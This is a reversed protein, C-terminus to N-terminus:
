RGPIQIFNSLILKPHGGLTYFEDLIKNFGTMQDFTALPICM